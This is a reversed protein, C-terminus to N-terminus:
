QKIFVPLEDLKAIAEITCGGSILNGTSREKWTGTPLVVKRSIKGKELIPAVLVSDGIMFEDTIHELGEHPFVYELYRVIPEGSKAAEDALSMILPLFEERIKLLSKVYGYHKDDLVRWPAASFQIMPMLTSTATYRVFLEPDFQKAGPLFDLYQGGGVM